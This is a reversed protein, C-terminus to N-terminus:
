FKLTLTNWFSDILTQDSGKNEDPIITVLLVGREERGYAYVEITRSQLRSRTIGRLGKLRLGSKLTKDASSRTLEAGATVDKQTIQKLMLDILLTPDLKEYVQVIVVTGLASAVLHQTIGDDIRQTAVSLSSPYQFSLLPDTFVTVPNRSLIVSMDRGDKSRVTVTEGPDIPVAVGDITVTFSLEGESYVLTPTVPLIILALLLASRTRRLSGEM